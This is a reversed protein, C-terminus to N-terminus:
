YDMFTTFRNRLGRFYRRSVEAYSNFEPHLDKVWFVEGKNESIHSQIPLNYKKALEGLGKM